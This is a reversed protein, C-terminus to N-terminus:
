QKSIPDQKTPCAQLESNQGQIWSGGAEAERPIGLICQWAQYPVAKKIASLELTKWIQTSIM